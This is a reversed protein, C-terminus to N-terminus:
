QEDSSPPTYETQDSGEFYNWFTPDLFDSPLHQGALISEYDIEKPMGDPFTELLLERLEAMRALGIDYESSEPTNSEDESLPIDVHQPNISELFALDPFVDYEETDSDVEMKDNNIEPMSSQAPSSSHDTDGCNQSYIRFFDNMLTDVYQIAKDVQVQEPSVHTSATPVDVLSGRHHSPLQTTPTLPTFKVGFAM